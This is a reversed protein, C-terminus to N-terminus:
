PHDHNGSRKLFKLVNLRIKDFEQPSYWNLDEEKALWTLQRKAYRRTDRKILDVAVKLDRIGKIAELLHRYGLSQMSKLESDYGKELLGQIEELFGRNMMAETRLNINRYLAERELSLGIWLIEFDPEDAHGWQQWESIPRGTLELVELARILRFADRPHIRGAALPDNKRVEDWLFEPGHASATKKWRQRIETTSKPCSFIGRQLVRLYLGTGGVVLIPVRRQHLGQIVSHARVRFESADFPQDPDIIDVLHYPVEKRESLTPKATGIDMYRYVQMSDANLIEGSMERALRHGMQSKGVATPGTIIVLKPRDM